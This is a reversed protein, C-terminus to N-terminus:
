RKPYQNLVLSSLFIDFLKFSLTMLILLYALGSPAFRFEPIGLSMTNYENHTLIETNKDHGLPAEKQRAVPVGKLRRRICADGVTVQPSEQVVPVEKPRVVPLGKLRMRLLSM